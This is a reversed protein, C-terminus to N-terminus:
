IPVPCRSPLFEKDNNPLPEIFVDAAVFVRMLLLITPRTIEQATRTKDADKPM